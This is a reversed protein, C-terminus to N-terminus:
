ARHKGQRIGMYLYAAVFRIVRAIGPIYLDAHKPQYTSMIIVGNARYTFGCM